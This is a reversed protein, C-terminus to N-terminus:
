LGLPVTRGRYTGSRAPTSSFGDVNLDSRPVVVVHYPCALKISPQTSPLPRYVRVNVRILPGDRWVQHIRIAYQDSTVQGMTVALVMEREFDVPVDPVPCLAMEARNRAVLRLPTTRSCYAGAKQWLIPFDESEVETDGGSSTSWSCGVTATLALSLIGQCSVRRM